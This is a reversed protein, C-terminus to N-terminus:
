ENGLKESLREITSLADCLRDPSLCIKELTCVGQSLSDTQFYVTALCDDIVMARVSNSITIIPKLDTEDMSLEDLEDTVDGNLSISTRVFPGLSSKKM